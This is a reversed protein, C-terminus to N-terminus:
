QPPHPFLELLDAHPVGVKTGDALVIPVWVVDVIEIVQEADAAQEWWDM